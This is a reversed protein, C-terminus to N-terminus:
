LVHFNNELMRELTNKSKFFVIQQQVINKRVSIILANLFIVHFAVIVKIILCAPMEAM